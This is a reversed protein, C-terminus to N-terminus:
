KVRIRTGIQLREPIVDPNLQRLKKVTSQYKIALNWFTEGKQIVHMKKSTRQKLGLALALGKTHAFALTNLFGDSKLKRADPEHDIFGNETLIATMSSERLVHFNAEKKGRDQWKTGVIIEDHVHNRFRNTSRKDAFKGNYIYSEFGAGGGANLHISVFCNAGWHNAMNTRQKLTLYEDKTRSLKIIQEAYERNLYDRMKLAITLCVDKEKLGNGIAGSDAGGHGADIFIKKM